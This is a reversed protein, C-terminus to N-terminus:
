MWQPLEQARDVFVIFPKGRTKWYMASGSLIELLTAWEDVLAREASPANRLHLVYGNARQWSLDQLADALADWNHGFTVPFGLARAFADLLEDKTRVHALDIEFWAGGNAIVGDRV